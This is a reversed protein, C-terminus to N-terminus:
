KFIFPSFATMFPEIFFIRSFFTLYNYLLKEYNNDPFEKSNNSMLMLYEYKNSIIFDFLQIGYNILINLESALDHTIKEGKKICSLSLHVFQIAHAKMANIHLDLDKNTSWCIKGVNLNIFEEMMIIKILYPLFRKNFVNLITIDIKLKKKM